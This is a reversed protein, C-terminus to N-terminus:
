SGGENALQERLGTLTHLGFRNGAFGTIRPSVLSWRVPATIPIFLNAADIRRAADAHLAWRQDAVVSSRAGALLADIESDCIAVADCRFHRLFWAPSNSPAVQDVLVLDADGPKDAQEVRIGLVSWDAALRDFLLKAGPGEPLALRLTPRGKDGFLRAAAARLQVRRQDIPTALWGPQVPDALGDLGGELVTARPLLGPVGLAAILAQRDIARSLLSRLEPDDLPGDKATPLLGFLGSVPDFRLATKGVDAARAFPLNAFTGGLVLDADGKQFAAIAPRADAAAILLAERKEEESDPVPTKRQLRMVGAPLTAKTAVHFPGTGQKDRLLAFEPQALLQLLNPRPASLRIEIVRDTMAVVDTVAGMSDKLANDSRSTLQHELLDAIQKGTIHGGGPWDASAIRFIYSLGDDSVNWREAFGPVIEGNADLRVLGQAVNALLVSQPTTLPGSAPDKLELSDGIVLVSVEGQRKSRHCANSGLTLAAIMAAAFAHRTVNLGM